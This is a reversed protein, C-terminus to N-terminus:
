AAIGCNFRMARSVFPPVRLVDIAIRGAWRLALRPLAWGAEGGASSDSPALRAVRALRDERICSTGQGPTRLLEPRAPM